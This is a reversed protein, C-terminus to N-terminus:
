ANCLMTYGYVYTHCLVNGCILWNCWIAMALHLAANLASCLALVLPSYKFYMFWRFSTCLLTTCTTNQCQLSPSHPPAQMWCTQFASSCVSCKIFIHKLYSIVAPPNKFHNCFSCRHWWRVSWVSFNSLTTESVGSPATLWALCTATLWVLGFLSVNLGVSFTLHLGYLGFSHMNSCTNTQVEVVLTQQTPWWISGEVRVLNKIRVLTNWFKKTWAFHTGCKAYCVSEASLFWFTCACRPTPM